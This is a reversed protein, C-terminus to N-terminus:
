DGITGCNEPCCSRADTWWELDVRYGTNLMAMLGRETAMGSQIDTDMIPLQPMYRGTVKDCVNAFMRTRMVPRHWIKDM